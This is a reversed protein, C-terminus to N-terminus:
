RLVERMLRERERQLYWTENGYRYRLQSYTQRRDLNLLRCADALPMEIGELMVLRTTTKKNAQEITTAWRCNEPSYSGDNDIRDLTMGDPADGM